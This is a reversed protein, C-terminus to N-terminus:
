TYLVDYDISCACSSLVELGEFVIRYGCVTVNYWQYINVYRGLENIRFSLDEESLLVEALDPHM